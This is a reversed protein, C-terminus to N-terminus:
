AVTKVNLTALVADHVRGNSTVLSGGYLTRRGDLTTARGGAEEVIVQLAAIDWPELQLDVAVEGAGEAVLMHQFFDGYGRQRKTCQLLAALGPFADLRRLGDLGSHFLQSQELSAIASVALRRGDCFAGAGRVAWWRMRLAPASVLGAVIEDDVEVALLTGFVPVGRLYNATADIPDIILRKRSDGESGFEEGCVGLGLGSELITHRAMREIEVDGQTVPGKGPKESVRLEHSRFYRLAIPDAQDALTTLLSLYPETQVAASVEEDGMSM